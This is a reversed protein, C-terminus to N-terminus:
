IEVQGSYFCETTFKSIENIVVDRAFEIHNNEYKKFVACIAGNVEMAGFGGDNINDKIEKLHDVDFSTMPICGNHGYWDTVDALGKIHFGVFKRNLSKM